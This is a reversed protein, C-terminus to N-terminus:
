CFTAWTNYTLKSSKNLWGSLLVSIPKQYNAVFKLSIPINLQISVNFYIWFLKSCSLFIKIVFRQFNFSLKKSNLLHVYSVSKIVFHLNTVSVTLMATSLAGNSM